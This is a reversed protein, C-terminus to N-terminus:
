RKRGEVIVANVTRELLEIHEIGPIDSKLPSGNQASYGIDELVTILSSVDYMCKHSSFHNKFYNIGLFGLPTDFVGLAEIFDPARLDGRGYRSIIDALDPVVVRIIGNCILVRHCESLFHEGEEKSFHELTHSTYIVDVSGDEWPFTKHLNHIYVSRDWNGGFFKFRKNMAQVFPLRSLRAGFAYDVNVWGDPTQFGCGLNLKM